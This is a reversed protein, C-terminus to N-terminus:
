RIPHHPTEAQVSADITPNAAFCFPEVADPSQVQGANSEVSTLPINDSFHPNVFRCGLPSVACHEPSAIALLPAYARATSVIREDLFSM